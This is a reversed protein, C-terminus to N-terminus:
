NPMDEYYTMKYEKIAYKELESFWTEDVEEDDFNLDKIKLIHKTSENVDNIMKQIDDDSVNKTCIPCPLTELYDRIFSVTMEM